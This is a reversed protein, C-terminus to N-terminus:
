LVDVVLPAGQPKRVEQPQTNEFGAIDVRFLLPRDPIEQPLPELQYAVPGRVDYADLIDEGATEPHRHSAILYFSEIFGMYFSEKGFRMEEKRNIRTSGRYLVERVLYFVNLLHDKLLYLQSFFKGAEDDEGADSRDEAKGDHQLHSINMPEFFYPVIGGVASAHSTDM